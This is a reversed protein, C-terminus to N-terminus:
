FEDKYYYTGKEALSIKAPQTCEKDTYIPTQKQFYYYRNTDAPEFNAVTDGLAGTKWKNAYFSVTKSGDDAVTTNKEIYAELGTVKEPTFLNDLAVSKVSSAYKVQIPKVSDVSLKGDVTKFHSLPIM